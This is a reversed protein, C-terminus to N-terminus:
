RSTLNAEQLISIVRIDVPHFLFPCTYIICSWVIFRINM